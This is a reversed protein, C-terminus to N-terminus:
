LGRLWEHRRREPNEIAEDLALLLKAKDKQLTGALPLYNSAHNTYFMMGMATIHAVLERCETLLEVPTYPRWSADGTLTRYREGEDPHMLSLAAAFRPSILDLIKATAMANDMAKYPPALGLVVTLFLKMGAQHAKECGEVIQAATVGKGIARLVDDHGTELGFYLLSLGAARLQALQALSKDAFNRPAAYTSVRRVSPLRQRIRLLVELLDETPLSLADGDALFVKNTEPANEGAWDIEALLEHLPRPRYPKGRYTFCFTCRNHSCGLTAQLILSDAESPPRILPDEYQLM